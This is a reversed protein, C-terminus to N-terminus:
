LTTKLSFFYNRLAAPIYYGVGEYAYGSVEYKKNLLNNIHLAATLNVPGFWNPLDYSLVANVVTYPDISLNKTQSNDLYIRGVRQVNASAYIRGLQKTLRANIIM